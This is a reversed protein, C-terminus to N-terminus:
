RARSREGPVRHPAGREGAPTPIQTAASRLAAVGDTAPDGQERVAVRLRLLAYAGARPVGAWLARSLGAWAADDLAEVLAAADPPAARGRAWSPRRPAPPPPRRRCRRVAAVLAAAVIGTGLVLLGVGADLPM